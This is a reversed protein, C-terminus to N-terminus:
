NEVDRGISPMCQMPTEKAATTIVDDQAADDM